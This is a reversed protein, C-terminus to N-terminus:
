IRGRVYIDTWMSAVEGLTHWIHSVRVTSTGATRPFHRVGIETVRMNLKSAKAMVETDVFFKKSEIHIKDFVDRRFLKFACDVDRIRIRFLLRVLLNYGWSAVLRSLPDFRYIRFGCVIDYDDISALLNKIEGVDFQNDSDTYFVLPM